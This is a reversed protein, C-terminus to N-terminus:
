IGIKAEQGAAQEANEEALLQISSLPVDNGNDELSFEMKLSSM